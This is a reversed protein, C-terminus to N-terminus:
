RRARARRQRLLSSGFDVAFSMAGAVFAFGLMWLLTRM